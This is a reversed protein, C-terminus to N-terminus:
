QLTAFELHFSTGKGVESEVWVRGRLSDSVINHVVALGLGAYKGDRRTTFFADFVKDVHESPIGGGFDTVTVRFTAKWGEVRGKLVIQVPGGNGGYAHHFVNSLLHTVVQALQNPYGFWTESGAELDAIFNITLAMGGFHDRGAEIAERLYEAINVSELQEVQQKVSVNKFKDILDSIRVANGQILQAADEIDTGMGSAESSKLVGQLRTDNLLDKILGAATNVVGLPTKIEHAIGCVLEHLAEQRRTDQDVGKKGQDVVTKAYRGLWTAFLHRGLALVPRMEQELREAPAIAFAPMTASKAFCGRSLWIVRDGVETREFETLGGKWVGRGAMADDITAAWPGEGGGNQAARRLREAVPGTRAQAGVQEFLAHAHSLAISVETPWGDAATDEVLHLDLRFAYAMQLLLVRAIRFLEHQDTASAMLDLSANLTDLAEQQYWAAMLHGLYGAVTDGTGYKGAVLRRHAFPAAAPAPRDPSDLLVLRLLHTTKDCLGGLATWQAQAHPVEVFMAVVSGAEEGVAALAEEVTRYAVARFDAGQTRAWDVAALSGAFVEPSSHVIVM